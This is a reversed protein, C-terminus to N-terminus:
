SIKYYILYSSPSSLWLSYSLLWKYYKRAIHMHTCHIYSHVHKHQIHHSMTSYFICVNNVKHMLHMSNTLYIDTMFVCCHYYPNIITNLLLYITVHEALLSWRRSALPYGSALLCCYRNSMHRKSYTCDQVGSSPCFSRGFCTSHWQLILYIQYM